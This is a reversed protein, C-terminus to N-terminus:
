KKKVIFSYTVVALTDSDRLKLTEDSFENFVLNNIEWGLIQGSSGIKKLYYGMLFFEVSNIGEKAPTIVPAISITEPYPVLIVGYDFYKFFNYAREIKPVTAPPTYYLVRGDIRKVSRKYWEGEIQVTDASLYTLYKRPNEAKRPLPNLEEYRRKFSASLDANKVEGNKTFVRVESINTIEDEFYSVPYQPGKDKEKCSSFTALAIIGAVLYKKM